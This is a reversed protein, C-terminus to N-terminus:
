SEEEKEEELEFERGCKPCKATLISVSLGKYLRIVATYCQSCVKLSGGM